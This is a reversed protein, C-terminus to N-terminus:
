WGCPAERGPRADRQEPCVHVQQLLRLAVDPLALDAGRRVGPQGVVLDVAHGRKGTGRVALHRQGRRAGGETLRGLDAVDAELLRQQEVVLGQCGGRRRHDAGPTSSKATSVLRPRRASGGPM